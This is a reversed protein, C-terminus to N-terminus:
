SANAGGRAWVWSSFGARRQMPGAAFGSALAELLSLNPAKEAACLLGRTPAPSSTKAPNESTPPPTPPPQLNSITTSTPLYTAPSGLRRRLYGHKIPYTPIGNKPPSPAPNKQLNPITQTISQPPANQHTRHPTHAQDQAVHLESKGWDLLSYLTTGYGWM